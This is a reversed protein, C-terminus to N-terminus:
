AAGRRRARLRHPKAFRELDLEDVLQNLHLPDVGPRFPSSFVDVRFPPLLRGRREQAALGRRLTSNLAAKFSLRHRHALERLKGAVDDDLTVTTRM